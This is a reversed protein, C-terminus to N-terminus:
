TVQPCNPVWAESGDTSNGLEEGPIFFDLVQVVNGHSLKSLISVERLIRKCDVLDEFIRKCKKIAVVQRQGKHDDVAECVSGYSGSGILETVKYRSPLQWSEGPHRPLSPM